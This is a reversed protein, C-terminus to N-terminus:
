LCLRKYIQDVPLGRTLVNNATLLTLLPTQLVRVPYRRIASASPFIRISFHPFFLVLFTSPLFLCVFLPFFDKKWPETVHNPGEHVSSTTLLQCLNSLTKRLEKFGTIGKMLTVSVLVSRQEEKFGRMSHHAEGKLVYGPYLTSLKCFLFYERPLWISFQKNSRRSVFFVCRWFPFLRFM